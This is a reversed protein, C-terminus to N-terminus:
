TTLSSLVKNAIQDKIVPLDYFGRQIRERAKSIRENRIDPADSLKQVAKRFHGADKAVQDLAGSDIIADAIAELVEPQNYFGDSVRQRVQDIKEQRVTESSAVTALAKSASSIDISDQGASSIQKEETRRHTEVKQRGRIENIANEIRM